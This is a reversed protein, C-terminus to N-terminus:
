TARHEPQELNDPSYQGDFSWQGSQSSIDPLGPRFVAARVLHNGSPFVSWAKASAGTPLMIPTVNGLQGASSVAAPVPGLADSPLSLPSSAPAHTWVATYDDTCEVM